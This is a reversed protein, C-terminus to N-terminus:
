MIEILFSEFVTNEVECPLTLASSLIPDLRETIGKYTLSFGESGTKFLTVSGSFTSDLIDIQWQIGAISYFSNRYRVAM